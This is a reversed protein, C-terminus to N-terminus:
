AACFLSRGEQAPQPSLVQPSHQNGSATAPLSAAQKPAASFNLKFDQRFRDM